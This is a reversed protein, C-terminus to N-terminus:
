SRHWVDPLLLRLRVCGDLVPEPLRYHFHGVVAVLPGFLALLLALTPLAGLQSAHKSKM